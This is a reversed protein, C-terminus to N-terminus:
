PTVGLQTLRQRAQRDNPNKQLIARLRAIGADKDGKNIMVDAIQYDVTTSTPNFEANMQLLKLAEDYKQQSALRQAAQTVPTETFNYRGAAVDTRLSRYKAIASDVGFKEIQQALVMDITMPKSVGRHCTYCNVPVPASPDRTPMMKLYVNNISDMMKFMLRATKKQDKTDLAYNLPPGGGGGGPAAGGPAGGGGAPPGGAPAGGPAAGEREAHCFACQVGLANRFSQMIAVVQQRPMDKPLVQLNEPAAQNGGGGGGGGGGQAVASSALVLAGLAAGIM